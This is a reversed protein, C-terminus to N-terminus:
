NENFLLNKYILGLKHICNEQLIVQFDEIMM